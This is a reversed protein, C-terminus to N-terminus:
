VELSSKRFFQKVTLFIFYCNGILYREWLRLPEKALRFFWEFGVKRIWEPARKKKGSYYDLTAGLSLAVSVNISDLNKLSANKYANRLYLFHAANPTVVFGKEKKEIMEFVKAAAEEVSINDIPFNNFLFKDEPTNM